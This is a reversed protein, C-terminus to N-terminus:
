LVSAKARATLGGVPTNLHKLNQPLPELDSTGYETTTIVAPRAFAPMARCLWASCTLQLHAFRM